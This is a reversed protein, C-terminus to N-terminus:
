ILIIGHAYKMCNHSTSINTSTLQISNTNLDRGLRKFIKFNVHTKSEVVPLAGLLKQIITHVLIFSAYLAKRKTMTTVGTKMM